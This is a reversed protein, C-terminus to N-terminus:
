GATRRGIRCGHARAATVMALTTERTSVTCMKTLFNFNDEFLVVADPGVRRVLEAFESVDSAFMADFVTVDHGAARLAAAVYLTGLPPYPRMKQTQKDDFGLFFSHAVM